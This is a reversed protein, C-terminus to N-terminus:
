PWAMLLANTNEATPVSPLRQPMKPLRLLRAPNSPVEGERVLYRFFM